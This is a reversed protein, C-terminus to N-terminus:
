AKTEDLADVLEDRNTDSLHYVMRDGLDTGRVMNEISKVKAFSTTLILGRKDLYNESINEIASIAKPLNDSFFKNSMKGIRKSVDYIPANFLDPFNVFAIEDDDLFMDLGNEKKFVVENMTASSMVYKDARKWIMDYAFPAISLPKFTIRPYVGPRLSSHRAKIFSESRQSIWEDSVRDIRHELDKYSELLKIDSFSYMDKDNLDCIEDELLEKVDGIIEFEDKKFDVYDYIGYLTRHSLVVECQSLIASESIDDAEDIVLLERKNFMDSNELCFYSFNMICLKANAAANKQWWYDCNVYEKCKSKGIKRCDGEACSYSGKRCKYNNRGKIIECLERFDGYYQDQLKKQATTLFSKGEMNCAITVNIVSKGLGTGGRLLIAKKGEDFLKLIFSIGKLQLHVRDERSDKFPYSLEDMLMQAVGWDKDVVNKSAINFMESYEIM